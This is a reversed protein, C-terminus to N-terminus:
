NCFVAHRTKWAVLLNIRIRSKCSVTSDSIAGSLCLPELSELSIFTLSRSVKYHQKHLSQVTFVSIASVATIMRSQIAYDGTCSVAFERFHTRYRQYPAMQCTSDYAVFTHCKLWIRSPIKKIFSELIVSVIKCHGLFLNHPNLSMKFRHKDCFTVTRKIVVIFPKECKAWLQGTGTSM